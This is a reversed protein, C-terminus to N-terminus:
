SVKPQADEKDAKEEKSINAKRKAYLGTGIVSAAVLMGMGLSYNTPGNEDETTIPNGLKITGNVDEPLTIKKDETKAIVKKAELKRWLGLRPTLRIHLHAVGQESPKKTNVSIKKIGDKHKALFSFLLLCLDDREKQTAQKIFGYLTTAQLQPVLLINKKPWPSTIMLTTAKQHQNFYPSFHSEKGRNILSTPATNTKKGKMTFSFPNGDKSIPAEFSFSSLKYKEVMRGIEDLFKNFLRRFFDNSGYQKGLEVFESFNLMKTEIRKQEVEDERLKEETKKVFFYLLTLTKGEELGKIQLEYSTNGRAPFLFFTMGMFL